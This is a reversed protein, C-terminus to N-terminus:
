YISGLYTAKPYFKRLDEWQIIFVDSFKYLLKGTLTPSSVNAFSEIFILKKRFIKGILFTPIVSLAGTSIIIDPKERIFIKFSVLSNWILKIVVLPERRNVQKLLYTDADATLYSTQETVKYILYNEELKTLLQLEDFHGGSSAILCIKKVM